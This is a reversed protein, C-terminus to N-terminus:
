KRLSMGLHGSFQPSLQQRLEQAEEGNEEGAFEGGLGEYSSKHRKEV